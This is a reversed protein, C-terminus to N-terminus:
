ARPIRSLLELAEKQKPDVALVKQIRERAKEYEKMHLHVAAANLHPAAFRPQLSTAKDFAKLAAAYDGIDALVVGYNYQIVHNSPSIKLAEEYAIIAEAKKGLESLTQGYKAFLDGSKWGLSIAEEFQQRAAVPNNLRLYLDGLAEYTQPQEPYEDILAKYEALAETSRFTQALHNAKIFRQAWAKQSMGSQAAAEIGMLKPEFLKRYVVPQGQIRELAKGSHEKAKEFEGVRLYAESLAGRAAFSDPYREITSEWLRVDSYWDPQRDWLKFVFVALVISCGAALLKPAPESQLYNRHLKVITMLLAPGFFLTPLYLFREAFVAGIPFLLNSVPLISLLFWAGALSFWPLRNRALWLVAAFATWVIGIVLGVFHNELPSIEHHVSLNMPWFWSGVYLSLVKLATMVRTIDSVVDQYAALPPKWSGIIAHRVGWFIAGLMLATVAQMLLVKFSAREEGTGGPKLIWEILGILAPLLLWNEKCLMAALWFLCALPFSLKSRAFHILIASLGFCMGLLEARGSIWAVSETHLPHLAFLLTSLVAVIRSLGLRQLLLFLLVTNLSHLLHNTLHFGNITPKGEYIGWIKEDVSYSLTTLPRYLGQDPQNPPYTSTFIEDLRIEETVLKNGVVYRTDDYVFGNRLSPYYAIQVGLFLLLCILWRSKM